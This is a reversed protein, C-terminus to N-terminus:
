HREVGLVEEAAEVVEVAEGRGLIAMSPTVCGLAGGRGGGGREAGGGVGFAAM